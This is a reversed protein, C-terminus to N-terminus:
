KKIIKHSETRGDETKIIVFYIGTNLEQINLKTFDQNRWNKLNRGDTSNLEISKIIKKKLNLLNLIDLVPNPYVIFDHNEKIIFANNEGTELNLNNLNVIYLETGSDRLEPIESFSSIYFLQTDTVAIDSLYSTGNTSIGNANLNLKTTGSVTGDSVWIRNDQYKKDTFFVKDSLCKLEGFNSGVSNVLKILNQNEGLSYLNTFDYIFLNKGCSKFRLRLDGSNSLLESVVKTGVITGDTEYLKFYNGGQFKTYLYLKNKYEIRQMEGVASIKGLQLDRDANVGDSAMLVNYEGYGYHDSGRNTYIMKANTTGLIFPVVNNGAEDVTTKFIKTGNTTGDTEAIGYTYSEASPNYGTTYYLKNNIKSSGADIINIRSLQFTGAETGDTRWLNSASATNRSGDDAGFLVVNATLNTFYPNENISQNFNSINKLIKTGGATGDTICPEFGTGDSCRFYLTENKKFFGMGPTSYGSGGVSVNLIKTGAKTGDSTFLKTGHSYDTGYYILKGNLNESTSYSIGNLHNLDEVLESKDTYLNYKFLEVGNEPTTANMILSGDYDIFNFKYGTYNTTIKVDKILKTGASTGDSVFYNDYDKEFLLYRSDSSVTYLSTNKLDPIYSNIKKVINESTDFFYDEYEFSSSYAKFFINNKFITLHQSDVKNQTDALSVQETGSASGDTKYLNGFSGNQSFIFYIEDSKQIARIFSNNSITFPKIFSFTNDDFNWKWLGNQNNVANGLFLLSSAFAIPKSVIGTTSGPYFDSVIETGLITGDTKWLENGRIGDNATFYVLNRFVILNNVQSNGSPNIRKIEFTGTSTGDTVWIQSTNDLYTTFFLRNGLIITNEIYLDGTPNIAKVLYTGTASGDSRFLQVNRTENSRGLFILIGNLNIFKSNNDIGSGNTYIDRVIRSKSEPSDKIWLERGNGDYPSAIRASFFLKEGVKTLNDPESDGGFNTELITSNVTVQSYVTLNLFIILFLYIKKM